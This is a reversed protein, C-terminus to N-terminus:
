ETAEKAKAAEIGTLHTTIIAYLSMFSVWLISEKWVLITPITLGAWVAALGAHLRSAKM